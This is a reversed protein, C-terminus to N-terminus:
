QAGASTRDLATRAIALGELDGRAGADIVETLMHRLTANNALLHTNQHQLQRLRGLDDTDDALMKAQQTITDEALTVYTHLDSKPVQVASGHCHRVLGNFVRALQIRKPLDTM